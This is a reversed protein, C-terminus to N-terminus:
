SQQRSRVRLPRSLPGFVRGAGQARRSRRLRRHSTVPQPQLLVADAVADATGDAAFPAQKHHPADLNLNLNLICKHVSLVLCSVSTVPVTQISGISCSNGVRKAERCWFPGLFKGHGWSSGSHINAVGRSGLNKKVLRSSYVLLSKPTLLHTENVLSRQEVVIRAGLMVSGARSM